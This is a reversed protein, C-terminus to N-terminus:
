SSPYCRFYRIKSSFFRLNKKLNAENLNDITINETSGNRLSSMPLPNQHSDPTLIRTMNFRFRDRNSLSASETVITNKITETHLPKIVSIDGKASTILEGGPQQPTKPLLISVENM